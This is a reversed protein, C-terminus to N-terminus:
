AEERTLGRGQMSGPGLPEGKLGDFIRVLGEATIFGGGDQDFSEFAARVKDEHLKVRTALMAAVFPTYHLEEDNSFDMSQLIREMEESPVELHGRMLEALSELSIAGRGSKDLALFTEELDQLERSTM